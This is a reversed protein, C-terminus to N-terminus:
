VDVNFSGLQEVLCLTALCRMAEMSRAMVAQGSTVVVTHQLALRFEVLQVGLGGFGAVVSVLLSLQKRITADLCLIGLNRVEGVIRALASHGSKVGITNKVVLVIALLRVGLGGFEAIRTACRRYFKWLQKVLCSSALCGMSEMSRAMVAQCSTAVVTHQLALRFKVLQVGLGGFGAM